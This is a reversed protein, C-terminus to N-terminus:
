EEILGKLEDIVENVREVLQQIQDVRIFMQQTPYNELVELLSIKGDDAGALILASRLAKGSEHYSPTTIIEAVKNTVNEGTKSYLANSLKVIDVGLELTMLGRVTDSNVDSYGLAQRLTKTTAGTEAFAALDDVGISAQLPWAIDVVIQEAAEAKNCAFMLGAFAGLVTAGISALYRRSTM